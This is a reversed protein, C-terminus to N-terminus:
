KLRYIKSYPSNIVLEFRNKNYNGLMFMQVYVSDFTDSDMVVFEGYQEMYVVAYEGSSDYSVVENKDKLAMVFTKAQVENNGLKLKGSETDLTIGNDLKVINEKQEITKGVYIDRDKTNNGTALDVDSFKAITPILEMMRYPLYLYIDRTKAPLRYSPQEMESLLKTTDLQSPQANKFLMDIGDSYGLKKYMQSQKMENANADGTFSKKMVNAFKYYEDTASIILNSALVPSPTLLAQSVVFNEHHHKGGDILTSTGSYFWIPYGYDWWSVTVDNPKSIARLKELDAIENSTFVTPMNYEFVHYINPILLVAMSVTIFAIKQWKSIIRESIYFIFYSAGLAAIPTAYVTFRLGGVLAFSGIALLPLAILFARHRYVLIAYGIVGFVLGYISGSIRNAFTMFDISGAEQVTNIVGFFHLGAQTNDKLTYSLIKALIIDFINGFYLLAVLAVGAIIILHNRSFERAKFLLYLAILVALQAIFGYPYEYPSTLSDFPIMAVMVLSLAKYTFNENRHYWLKYAMYSLGLGFIVGKSSTYVFAYFVLIISGYFLMDWSSKEISRLMFYLAFVPLWISFMDTDYYGAMTRNYYSYAIAGLLAACFGWFPKGYLNGILVLPIVILSSLVIPMYFLTNELSFPSLKVLLASFLITGQNWITWMRPNNDHSDDLINQVGTAFYYGDNTTLIHNGNWLVSPDGSHIVVWIMRVLVSFIYAITILLVLKNTSIDKRISKV